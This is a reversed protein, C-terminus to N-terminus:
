YVICDTVVQRIVYMYNSYVYYEFPNATTYPNRCFPSKMLFISLKHNRLYMATEGSSSGSKEEYSLVTKTNIM